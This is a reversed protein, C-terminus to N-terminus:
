FVFGLEKAFGPLLPTAADFLVRRSVVGGIRTVIVARGVGAIQGPERLVTVLRGGEALQDLLIPPITEVAGNLVIVNYPAQKAYGEHMPGHIVAANDCNLETLLRNAEDVMTEVAELGLVSASLRALIATSYGTACGIDLVADTDTIRAEQMLRALVLPEMLHRGEGIPLDEDLYAIGRYPKPVFLERPVAEFAEIIAMNTVKNTRLQSEVMNHRAAAFNTM